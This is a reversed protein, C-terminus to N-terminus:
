TVENKNIEFSNILKECDMHIKAIRKVNQSKFFDLTFTVDRIKSINKDCSEM